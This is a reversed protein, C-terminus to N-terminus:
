KVVGEQLEKLLKDISGNEELEQLNEVEFLLEEKNATTIDVRRLLVEIGSPSTFSLSVDQTNLGTVSFYRYNFSRLVCQQGNNFTIPYALRFRPLKRKDSFQKETRKRINRVMDDYATIWLNMQRPLSHMRDYIIQMYERKDEESLPTVEAAYRWQPQGQKKEQRVYVIRGELQAKYHLTEIYLKITSNEPVYIPRQSYFAMGTESVDATIAHYTYGHTQITINEEARIRETERFARRGLMFFIAYFLAVTNHALWFIIVSSYVLAWGYKGSIFRVMAAISLMLLFIHPIAFKLNYWRSEANEKNKNTVKFKKERIHLTELLTPLILYPMFITDVVQSWRQNRINSSLFRMAISYLAYSPLWFVIISWFKANVIQFDFLAFLIPSLIFILRNFFSWWYLFSNLYTINAAFPLKRSFVAGTNQLSQVIGRAWRVRQKLMSPITTTTLGAAQVEDTAYTLYDAQQLRISTEFDETITHYPFGGIEEMAQRSIVTNSGTYAIANSANRIRNIEMSFFDQENPINQEAYLNFQFLDPNYFSQPTQVLGLKREEYPPDDEQRLRWIEGDKIFKPLLFYPVTKMLFSHQPIMDADFTAILPSTTNALANNLNGSKAHKNQALPIYGVGFEAALEAVSQRNGDDCLYIHVKSKDPYDMYTCANVTKYLLDVPENHTAIFVDVDPYYEEPVVPLELREVTKQMKQIFLEFTTFVTMTEAVILLIGFVANWFGAHFPITFVMRWILYITMLVMTAIFFFDRKRKEKAAQKLAADSTSKDEKEM